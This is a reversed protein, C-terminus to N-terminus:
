PFVPMQGLGMTEKLNLMVNMNQLAQGSAGKALNDIVAILIARDPLRGPHVAILCLNSGRVHRTAPLSKYALVRVFPEAAYRRELAAQLDPASVGDKM